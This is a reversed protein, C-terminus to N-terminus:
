KKKRVGVVPKRGVPQLAGSYGNRSTARPKLDSKGDIKSSIATKRGVLRSAAIVEVLDMQRGVDVIHSPKISGHAAIAQKCAREVVWSLSRDESQAIKRLTAVVEGSFYVSVNEGAKKTVRSLPM